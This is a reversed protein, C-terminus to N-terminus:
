VVQWAAALGHMLSLESRPTPPDYTRQDRSWGGGGEIGLYFGTWNYAAAVVPPAKTFPRPSPDSALVPVVYSSGTPRDDPAFVPVVFSPRDDSALVPTAFGATAMAIIAIRKM